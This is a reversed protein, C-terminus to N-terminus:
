ESSYSIRYIAGARDDSVLMSGDKIILIDVPRGSVKGKKLWGEAFVEHKVATDNIITVFIVRYGVKSSRNWSGHQALFVGGRYKKPFMERNYFKMGLPATHAQMKIQPKTYNTCNAEGKFIPDPVGDGYCFPFGFHEGRSSIKNLEEPPREDGLWDRGNDTFWLTGTEPNWDFGVTNRIGKAENRFDTGDAKISHMASYPLPKDCINCPAGVPIYLRGDPGFAIYKWGHWGDKPLNDYISVPKPPNDLKNEINDFRIIRSIEAVYLAGDKFAVGNPSRLNQAIIWKKDAKGDNNTDKVAYVKDSRRTSVFLTGDKGMTMSRAGPLNDAYISISFGKPLKVLSNLSDYANVTTVSVTFIISLIILINKM